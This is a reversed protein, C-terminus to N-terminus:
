TRAACRTRFITCCQRRRRIPSASERCLRRRWGQCLLTLKRRHNALKVRFRVCRKKSSVVEVTDNDWFNSKNRPKMVSIFEQFKPNNELADLKAKWEPM